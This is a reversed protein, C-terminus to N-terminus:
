EDEEDFEMGDFGVLELERLLAEERGQKKILEKAEEVDKVNYQKGFRSNLLVRKGNEFMQFFATKGIYKGSAKKHKKKVEKTKVWERIQKIETEITKM